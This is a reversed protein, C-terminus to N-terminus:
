GFEPGCILYQESVRGPYPNITRYMRVFYRQKVFGTTELWNILDVKDEHIDLAVPQDNLSELLVSLLPKASDSTLTCLPGIYNFRSGTRGLIYGDPCNDNKHYFARGPNENLLKRLLYGRDAGFIARDLKLVLSINDQNIKHLERGSIRNSHFNLADCTMRFIKYEEIFGLKRYLPEGAPTADLKVSEVHKV